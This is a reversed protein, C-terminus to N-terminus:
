AYKKLAFALLVISVAVVPVNIKGDAKTFIRIPKGNPLGSTNNSQPIQSPTNSFMNDDVTFGNDQARKAVDYDIAANTGRKIVDQSLNEFYDGWDAM